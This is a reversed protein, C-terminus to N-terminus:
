CGSTNCNYGKALLHVACSHKLTHFHRLHEPVDALEGYTRMWYHLSQRSIPHGERSTFIAGASKGRVKLWAKLAKAEERSLRHDGSNSGKKRTIFLRETRPDYDRMQLAGVESARLGAHYAISFIARNRPEDISRYLRDWDMESMHKPQGPPRPQRAPQGWSKSLIAIKDLQPNTETQIDRM